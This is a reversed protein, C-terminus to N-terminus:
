QRSLCYRITFGVSWKGNGLITNHESIRRSVTIYEDCLLNYDLPEIRDLQMSKSVQTVNFFSIFPSIYGLISLQKSYTSFWALSFDLIFFSTSFCRSMASFWIIRPYKNLASHFFIELLSYIHVVAEM